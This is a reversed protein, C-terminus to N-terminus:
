ISKIFDDWDNTHGKKHFAKEYMRLRASSITGSTRNLLFAIDGPTFSLKLLMCVHWETESIRTLERITREFHPLYQDFLVNLQALESASLGSKRRTIDRLQLIFEDSVLSQFGDEWAASNQQKELKMKQITQQLYKFEMQRKRYYFYFLLGIILVVLSMILIVLTKQQSHYEAMGFRWDSYDKQAALTTHRMREAILQEACYLVSDQYLSALSDVGLCKNSWYSHCLYQISDNFNGCNRRVVSLWYEAEAREGKRACITALASLDAIKMQYDECASLDYILEEALAMSDLCVAYLAKASIAEHLVYDYSKQRSLNIAQDLLIRCSDYEQMHLHNSAVLVKANIAYEELGGRQFEAYSRWAFYGADSCHYTLNIQALTAYMKGKSYPDDVSACNAMARILSLSSKEHEGFLYRFLGQYLYAYFKEEEDGHAEYYDAALTILSDDAPDNYTKYQAQTFLLAYRAQLESGAPLAAGDIGCLLSYASDPQSSLLSEAADLLAAEPRSQCSVFALLVGIIYIRALFRM